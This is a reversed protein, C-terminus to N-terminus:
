GRTVLDLHKRPSPHQYGQGILALAQLERAPRWPMAPSRQRRKPRSEDFECSLPNLRPTTGM